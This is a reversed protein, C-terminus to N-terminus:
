DEIVVLKIDTAKIYYDPAVPSVNLENTELKFKEAKELTDFDEHYYSQGWGRESEVCFVRYKCEKLIM